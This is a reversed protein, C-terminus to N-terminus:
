NLEDNLSVPSFGTKKINSKGLLLLFNLKFQLLIFAKSYHISLTKWVIVLFTRIQSEAVPPAGWFSKQGVM